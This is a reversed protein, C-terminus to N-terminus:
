AWQDHGPSATTTFHKPSDLIAERAYLGQELEREPVWSVQSQRSIGPLPEADPQHTYGQFQIDQASLALFLSFDRKCPIAKLSLSWCAKWGLLYKDWDGPLKQSQLAEWDEQSELIGDASDEKTETAQVVARGAKM